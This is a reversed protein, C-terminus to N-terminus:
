AFSYNFSVKIQAGDDLADATLITRKDNQFNWLFIHRNSLTIAMHEFSFRIKADDGVQLSLIRVTYLLIMQITKGTGILAMDVLDLSM